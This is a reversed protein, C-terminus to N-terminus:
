LQANPRAMLLISPHVKIGQKQAADVIQPLDGRVEPPISAIDAPTPETLIKMVMPTKFIKALAYPAAALAAGGIMGGPSGHVASQVFHWVGAGHLSAGALGGTKKQDRLVNEKAQQIDGLGVKKVDALVPAPKPPLVPEPKVAPTKAPIAKSEAQYGRITNARQALEPNYRALTQIGSQDAGKLAAISKGRETARMAKNLPSKFDRFANMYDRYFSRADTLVDGVGKSEAM